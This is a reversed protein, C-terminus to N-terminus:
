PGPPLRPLLHALARALVNQADDYRKLFELETAMNHCAAGYVSLRDTVIQQGTGNPDDLGVHQGNGAEDDNNGNDGHHSGCQLGLVTSLIVNHCWM